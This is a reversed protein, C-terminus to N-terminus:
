SSLADDLDKKLEDFFLAFAPQNRHANGGVKVGIGKALPQVVQGLKGGVKGAFRAFPKAKGGFPKCRTKHLREGGVGPGAINPLKGGGHLADDGRSHIGGHEKGHVNGFCDANM